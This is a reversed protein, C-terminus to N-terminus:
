NGVWRRSRPYHRLLMTSRLTLITAAEQVWISWKSCFFVSNEVGNTTKKGLGMFKGTPDVYGPELGTLAGWFERGKELDPVDVVVKEFEAIM